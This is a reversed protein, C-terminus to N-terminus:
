SAYGNQIILRQPEDEPDFVITEHAARVEAPVEIAGDTLAHAFEWLDLLTCAGNFLLNAQDYTIGFRRRAFDRVSHVEGTEVVRVLDPDHDFDESGGGHHEVYPECGAHLAAWGALCATTGCTWDVGPAATGALVDYPVDIWQGQDWRDPEATVFELERRLADVNATRATTM